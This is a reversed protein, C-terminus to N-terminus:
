KLGQRETYMCTTHKHANGGNSLMQGHGWELGEIWVAPQKNPNARVFVGNPRDEASLVIGPEPRLKAWAQQRAWQLDRCAFRLGVLVWSSGFWLAGGLWWLSVRAQKVALGLHWSSPKLTHTDWQVDKETETTFGDHHLLDVKKQLCVPVPLFFLAPTKTMVSAAPSFRNPLSLHFSFPFFSLTRPPLPLFFVVFTTLVFATNYWQFSKHTLLRLLGGWLWTMFGLSPSPLQPWLWVPRATSGLSSGTVPSTFILKGHFLYVIPFSLYAPEKWPQKKM